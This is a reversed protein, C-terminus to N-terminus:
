QDSKFHYKKLQHKSEVRDLSEATVINWRWMLVQRYWRPTRCEKMLTLQMEEPLRRFRKKMLYAFFTFGAAFWVPAAKPVQFDDPQQVLGIATKRGPGGPGASSYALQLRPKEPKSDPNVAM